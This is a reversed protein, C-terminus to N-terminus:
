RWWGSRQWRTIMAMRGDPDDDGGDQDKGGDQDDDGDDQDEGDEARTCALDAAHPRGPLGPLGPLGLAGNRFTSGTADLAFLPTKFAFITSCFPPGAPSTLGSRYRKRTRVFGMAM